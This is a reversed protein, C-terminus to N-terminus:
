SCRQQNSSHWAQLGGIAFASFTDMPGLFPELFCNVAVTIVTVLCLFATMLKLLCPLVAVVVVIVM